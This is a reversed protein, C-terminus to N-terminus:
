GRLRRTVVRLRVRPNWGHRALSIAGSDNVEVGEACLLKRQVAAGIPDHISIRGTPGRKGIVRQWPLRAVSGSAKMAQGVVRAAGPLGALLAVQGYTAVRGRPIKRVVAYIQRYLAALHAADSGAAGAARQTRRAARRRTSAM